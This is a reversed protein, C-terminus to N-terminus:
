LIIKKVSVIKENLFHLQAAHSIFLAASCFNIHLVPGQHLQFFGTLGQLQSEWTGGGQSFDFSTHHPLLTYGIVTNIFGFLILFCILDEIVLPIDDFTWTCYVHNTSLQDLHVKKICFDLISDLTQLMAVQISM